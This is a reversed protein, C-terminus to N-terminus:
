QRAVISLGLLRRGVLLRRASIGASKRRAHLLRRISLRRLSDLGWLFQELFQLAHLLQLLLLLLLALVLLLLAGGRCSSELGEERWKPSVDSDVDYVSM